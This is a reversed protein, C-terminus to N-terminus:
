WSWGIAKMAERAANLNKEAYLQTVGLESHGLCAQAAELGFRRRIATAATHRLQHPHWRHVKSWAELEAQHANCWAELEARRVADLDKDALKALAPHAFAKDCARHIAQRYTGVTYHDGLPRRSRAKSKEAQHSVHSRYLPTKREARRGANRDAESRRPSFVYGSIDLGLFPRLVEQARPGVFVVRDKEHHEGKHRGPRYVWCSPDSMDIDTPRLEVVEQPRMGTFRQLRVMAAPVAPLHALTKEVIEDPVPGIPSRETAASRGKRLGEVTQLAQHIAVPLMERAAAWKFMARIRIAQRNISKRSWGRNVMADQCAKLSLPGFDKALTHGYIEKVVKLVQRSVCVETTPEGDKVYYSEVHHWYALILESVRLDSGATTTQQSPTPASHGRVLWEAIVRSYEARSEVSGYRGLYLMKGRIVVIAQNTPKHLRYSPIRTPRSV